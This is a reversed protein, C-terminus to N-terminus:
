SGLMRPGLCEGRRMRPLDGVVPDAIDLARVTCRTDAGSSLNVDLAGIGLVSSATLGSWESGSEGHRLLCRGHMGGSVSPPMALVPTFGSCVFDGVSALGPGPSLQVDGALLLIAM